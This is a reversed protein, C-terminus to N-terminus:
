RLAVFRYGRKLLPRIILPLAAVTNGRPGGADHLLIVGGPRTQGLVRRAIVPASPRAYDAPDVSWMATRMGLARAIRITHVTYSGYPPRFWTPSPLNLRRMERVAALISAKQREFPLRGLNEHNLTHNQIAHGGARIARVLSPYRAVNVGTVFFTAHIRYKALVSLVRPTWRPDPGDDFTLAVAPRVKLGPRASERVVERSITGRVANVIAGYHAPITRAPNAVGAAPAPTREVPERVNPGRRLEIVDGNAIVHSAGLVVGNVVIRGSVAGTRLVRGGVSILNGKPPMRGLQELLMGVTSGPTVSITAGDLTISLAADATVLAADAAVASPLSAIGMGVGLVLCAVRGGFRRVAGRYRAPLM